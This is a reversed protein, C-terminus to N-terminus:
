NLRVYLSNIRLGQAALLDQTINHTSVDVKIIYGARDIATGSASVPKDISWAGTVPTYIGSFGASVYQIELESLNGASVAVSMPLTESVRYEFGGAVTQRAAALPESITTGDGFRVRLTFSISTPPSALQTTAVIANNLVTNFATNMKIRNWDNSAYIAGGGGWLFGRWSGNAWVKANKMSRWAGGAWVMIDTKDRM